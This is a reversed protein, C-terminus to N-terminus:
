VNGTIKLISTGPEVTWVGSEEQSYTAKPVTIQGAVTKFEGTVTNYTYNTLLSWPTDNFTVSINKLIPTFTDELVVLDAASAETNGTNQIVFTYTIQGNESVVEPCVSKSIDLVSNDSTEVTSQVVINNAIGDGSITAANTISGDVDLPAYNNATVTYIIMASGQEPVNIGSITLNQNNTVTPAEQLVGNVFYKVSNNVYTLPILEGSNFSYVGLNDTLTLNTFPTYGSNVISIIYTIDDGLSYESTVATKAASLANVIEGSTKNSIITNGNYTLTAQNYFTTAM